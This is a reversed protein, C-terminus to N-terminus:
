MEEEKGITADLNEELNKGGQAGYVSLISKYFISFVKRNKRIFWIDPFSRYIILRFYFSSYCITLNNRIETLKSSESYIAAAVFRNSTNQFDNWFVNKCIIHRMNKANTFMIVSKAILFPVYFLIKMM